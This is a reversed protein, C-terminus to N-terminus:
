LRFVKHQGMKLYPQPCILLYALVKTMGFLKFGLRGNALM